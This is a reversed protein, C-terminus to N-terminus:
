VGRRRRAAIIEDPTWGRSTVVENAVAHLNSRSGRAADRLLAFAESIEIDFREALIGTAREIAVRSDLATQLQAVTAELAAIRDARGDLEPSAPESKPEDPLARGEAGNRSASLPL